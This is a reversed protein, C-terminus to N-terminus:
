GGVATWVDDPTEAKVEDFIPRAETARRPRLLIEALRCRPDSAGTYGADLAAQM